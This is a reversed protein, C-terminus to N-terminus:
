MAGTCLMVFDLLSQLDPNHVKEVTHWFTCDDKWSGSWGLLMVIAMPGLYIDCVCQLSVGEWLVPVTMAPVWLITIQVDHIVYRGEEGLELHSLM